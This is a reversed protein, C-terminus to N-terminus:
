GERQAKYQLRRPGPGKGTICNGAERTCSSWALCLIGMNRFPSRAKIDYIGTAGLRGSGLIPCLQAQPEFASAKVKLRTEGM